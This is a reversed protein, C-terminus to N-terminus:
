KIYIGNGRSESVIGATQYQGKNVEEFVHLM